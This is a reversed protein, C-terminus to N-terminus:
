QDARVGEPPGARHCRAEGLTWADGPEPITLELGQQEVYKDFNGFARSDYQIVPSYVTGAPTPPWRGALGGM